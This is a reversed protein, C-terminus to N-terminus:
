RDRDESRSVAQVVRPLGALDAITTATEFRGVAAILRHVLPELQPSIELLLHGGPRLRAAAQPVLREIVEAGGPGALLAERPEHDKVDRPLRAYEEESVYPPNSLVFDVALDAPLPALLDGHLLEVRDAVGHRVCNERAVALAGGSTDTAWVRAQPILKAACVALIGSGTGVDAVTWGNGEDDRRTVADMLAVVLHETEPRPILVERTVRFDLSYFERHGILYAVPTGQARLRVLERFEALVAEAPVEDYATFLDIRRCQRAHALLLQADLQASDSGREALYQATWQLLRKNTWSEQSSM